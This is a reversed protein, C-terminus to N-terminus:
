PKDKDIDKRAAEPTNYLQGSKALWGIAGCPCETVGTDFSTEAQCETLQNPAKPCRKVVVSM